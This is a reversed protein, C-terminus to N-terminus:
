PIASVEPDFARPPDGFNFHHLIAEIIRKAAHGDGYPNFPPIMREYAAPNSLLRSAEYVVNERNLGVLKVGGMALGEPRETVKRFVLIPKKLTPGEEQVGGSDTIIMYARTMAEIFAEYPLPGVLHIRESHNLISFVTKRVNPNLHVPYVIHVDPFFRVLDKLATCLDELPQGWSERRHATVLILRNSNL